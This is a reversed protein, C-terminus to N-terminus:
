LCAFLIHLNTSVCARLFLESTLEARRASQFKKQFSGVTKHCGLIQLSESFDSWLNKEFTFIDSIFM